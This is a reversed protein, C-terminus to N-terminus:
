VAGRDINTMNGMQRETWGRNAGSNVFLRAWKPGSSRILYRRDAERMVKAIDPLCGRRILMTFRTRDNRNLKRKILEIERQSLDRDSVSTTGTAKSM